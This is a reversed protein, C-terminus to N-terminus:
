IVPLAQQFTNYAQVAAEQAAELTSATGGAIHIGMGSIPNKVLVKWGYITSAWSITSLRPRVPEGSQPYTQQHISLSLVGQELNWFHWVTQPIDTGDTLKIRGKPESRYTWDM